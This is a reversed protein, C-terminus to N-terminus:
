GYHLLSYSIFGTVSDWIGVLFFVAEGAIRELGFRWAGM